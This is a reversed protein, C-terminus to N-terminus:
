ADDAPFRIGASLRAETMLRSVTLSAELQKEFFETDQACWARLLASFHPLGDRFSTDEFVEERGDDLTMTVRTLRGPHGDARICGRTGLFLAGRLDACDKAAIGVAQFGSYRMLLLGSVDIGREIGTHYTFHEPEGFLGVILSFNYVGLDM